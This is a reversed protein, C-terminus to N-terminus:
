WCVIGFLGYSNLNTKDVPEKKDQDHPRHLVFLLLVALLLRLDQHQDDDQHHHHGHQQNSSSNTIRLILNWAVGMQLSRMSGCMAQQAPLLLMLMEALLEQGHDIIVVVAVALVHKADKGGVWTGQDNGVDAQGEELRRDALPHVLGHVGLLPLLHALPCHLRKVTSWWPM